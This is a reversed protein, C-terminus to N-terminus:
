SSSRSIRSAPPGREAGSRAADRCGASRSSGCTDILAPDAVRQAGSRRATLFGYLLGASASLYPKGFLRRAARALVFLPHYGCIYAARGNKVWTEWQGGGDGTFRQQVIRM